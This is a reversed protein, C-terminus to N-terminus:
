QEGGGKEPNNIKGYLREYTELNEQLATIIGRVLAPPINILAVRRAPVDIVEGEHAPPKHPLGIWGFHLAFDWPSHNVAMANAYLPKEDGTMEPFVVRAKQTGTDGESPM